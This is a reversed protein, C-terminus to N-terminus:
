LDLDIKPAITHSETYEFGLLSAMTQAMQENSYQKNEEIIGKDTDPTVLIMFSDGSHNVMNNVDRGHDPVIMIATNDKYFNSNNVFNILDHIFYGTNRAAKKYDDIRNLHAFHDTMVFQMVLVKPNVKELLKRAMLYMMLESEENNGGEGYSEINPHMDNAESQVENLAQMIDIVGNVDPDTIFDPNELPNVFTKGRFRGYNNTIIPFDEDAFLHPAFESLGTVIVNVDEYGTQENIYKLVSKHPSDILNNNVIVETNGTFLEHYGPYSQKSLNAVNVKNDKNRDGYINAIPKLNEIDFVDEQEFVEIWNLGDLTVVILNEYTKPSPQPGCPEGWKPKMQEIWNPDTDTDFDDPKTPIQEVCWNSIDQNFESNNEFMSDMDTVNSVDWDGIPQNFSSSQFLRSLDSEIYKPNDLISDTSDFNLTKAFMRSRISLNGWQIIKKFINGSDYEFTSIFSLFMPIDGDPYVKITYRDNQSYSHYTNNDIVGDGWDVEKVESPSTYDFIFSDGEIEFIFPEGEEVPPTDPKYKRIRVRYKSKPVIAM